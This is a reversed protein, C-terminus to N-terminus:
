LAVKGNIAHCRDGAQAAGMKRPGEFSRRPLGRMVVHAGLTKIARLGQQYMTISWQDFNRQRKAKGAL